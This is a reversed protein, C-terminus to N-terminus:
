IVKWGAGRVWAQAQGPGYKGVIWTEAAPSLPGNLEMYSASVDGGVKLIITKKLSARDFKRRLEENTVLEALIWEEAAQSAPDASCLDPTFLGAGPTFGVAIDALVNSYARDTWDVRPAGGDGYDNVAAIQTGDLLLTASYGRGERGTTARYSGVTVNPGPFSLGFVPLHTTM